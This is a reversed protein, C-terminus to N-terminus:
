LALHEAKTINTHIPKNNYTNLIGIVYHHLGSCDVGNLEDAQLATVTTNSIYKQCQPKSVSPQQPVQLNQAKRYYLSRM